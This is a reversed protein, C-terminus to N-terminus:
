RVAADAALRRAVPRLAAWEWCEQVCRAFLWRVVRDGDLDAEGAVRRALGAPDAHLEVECNLLHQVVDYHPDGVHPKPDVLLWPEREASLVNAAHLDTVLLDRRGADRPLDHWLRLGERVLGADLAEPHEAHGREASAGWADCLSTLSRFVHGDALPVAHLQRLLAGIVGHQEAVPLETLPTGPRCRELLLATTGGDGGGGGGSPSPPRDDVAFVEAAGAGAWAAMGAAEDRAEWHRWAVKLVADRGAADHAPAVWSCTGGPEFPDGLRLGWREALEAVVGPLADLWAVRAPDGSRATGHALNSPVTLVM